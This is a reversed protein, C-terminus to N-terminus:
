VLLQLLCYFLELLVLKVPPCYPLNLSNESPTKDIYKIPPSQSKHSSSVSRTSSKSYVDEPRSFHKKRTKPSAFCSLWDPPSEERQFDRQHKCQVKVRRPRPEKNLAPASVSQGIPTKPAVKQGQDDCGESAVRFRPEIREDEFQNTAPLKKGWPGMAVGPNYSEETENSVGMSHITDNRSIVRM